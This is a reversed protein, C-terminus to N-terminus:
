PLRIEEAISPVMGSLSPASSVEALNVLVMIEGYDNLGEMIAQTFTEQSQHRTRALVPTGKPPLQPPIYEVLDTHEVEQTDKPNLTLIGNSWYQRCVEKTGGQTKVLVIADYSPNRLGVALVMAPDGSRTRYFKGLELNSAPSLQQIM